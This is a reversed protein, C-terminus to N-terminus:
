TKAAVAGVYSEAHAAAAIRQNKQMCVCSDTATAHRPMMFCVLYRTFKM